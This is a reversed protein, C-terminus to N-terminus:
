DLADLAKKWDQRGGLVRLIAVHGPEIVYVILHRGHLHIRVPPMFENRERAIEPVSVILEFTRVLGDIYRDAQEVSWTEASYRWIDDLDSEAAPSLRYESPPEASL